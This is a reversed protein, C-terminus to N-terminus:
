LMRPAARRPVHEAVVEPSLQLAHRGHVDRVHGVVAKEGVALRFRGERGLWIFGHPQADNVARGGGIEVKFESTARHGNDGGVAQIHLRDFLVAKENADSFGIIYENM